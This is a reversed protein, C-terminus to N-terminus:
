KFYDAALRYEDDVEGLLYDSMVLLRSGKQLSQISSVNGKPVYLITFSDSELVYEIPPLTRSPNEWDDVKILKIKFSGQVASFWRQEIKHGQWARINEINSNEIVYVRKIESADFENNYFLSGRSDSHCGGKIVKPEM